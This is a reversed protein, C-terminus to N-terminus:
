VVKIYFHIRNGRENDCNYVSFSNIMEDFTRGCKLNIDYASAWMNEFRMNSSQLFVTEGENYLRKAKVVNIQQIKSHLTNSYFKEM